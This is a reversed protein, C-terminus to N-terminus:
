AAAKREFRELAAMVKDVDFLTARGVNIYPIVKRSQWNRVTRQDVHLLEALEVPRLIKPMGNGLTDVRKNGSRGTLTRETKSFTDHEL